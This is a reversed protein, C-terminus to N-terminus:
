TKVQCTASTIVYNATVAQGWDAITVTAPTPTLALTLTDGNTFSVTATTPLPYTGPPLTAFTMAGNAAVVGSYTEGGATVVPVFGTLAFASGGCTPLTVNQALTVNGTLRGFSVANTTARLVPHMIWKGSQGAEHGFSQGVDFDLIVTTNEDEDIEVGGNMFKVKFGSQSCSPCKLEGAATVGDPLDAGSTAFVRDDKLRVYAEDLILRLESYDGAAIAEGDVLSLLQGGSLDLLDIWDTVEPDFELTEGEGEDTVGILRIRDVIIFAEALDGPGDTLKITLRGEGDGPGAPDDECAGLALVALVPIFLFFKRM